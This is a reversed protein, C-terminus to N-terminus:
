RVDKQNVFGGVKIECAGLTESNLAEKKFSEVPLADMEGLKKLSRRPPFDENRIKKFEKEKLLYNM